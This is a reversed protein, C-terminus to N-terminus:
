LEIPGAIFRFIIEIEERRFSFGDEATKNLQRKKNREPQSIISAANCNPDSKADNQCAPPHSICCSFSVRLDIM